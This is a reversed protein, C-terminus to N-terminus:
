CSSHARIGKKVGISVLTNASQYSSSAYPLSFVFEASLLM